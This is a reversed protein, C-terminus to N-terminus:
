TVSVLVASHAAAQGDGDLDVTRIMERIDEASVGMPGLADALESTTVEGTRVWCYNCSVCCDYSCVTMM